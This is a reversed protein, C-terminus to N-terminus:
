LWGWFRLGNQCTTHLCPTFEIGIDGILMPIFLWHSLAIGFMQPIFWYIFLCPVTEYYFHSFLVIVSIFICVVGWYYVKSKWTICFTKYDQPLLDRLYLIFYHIRWRGEIQVLITIKTLPKPAWSLFNHVLLIGSFNFVSASVAPSQRDSRHRAEVNNCQILSGCVIRSWTM